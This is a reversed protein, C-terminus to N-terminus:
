RVFPHLMHMLRDLESLPVRAACHEGRERLVARLPVRVSRKQTCHQQTQQQHHHLYTSSSGASTTATPNITIIQMMATISIQQMRCRRFILACSSLISFSSYAGNHEPEKSDESGKGHKREQKGRGANEQKEKQIM